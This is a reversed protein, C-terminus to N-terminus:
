SSGIEQCFELLANDDYNATTLKSDIFWHLDYVKDLENEIFPAYKYYIQLIKRADDNSKIGLAIFNNYKARLANFPKIRRKAGIYRHKDNVDNDIDDLIYFINKELINEVIGIRFKDDLHSNKLLSKLFKIALEIFCKKIDDHESNDPLTAIVQSVIDSFIILQTVCQSSSYNQSLDDIMQSISLYKRECASCISSVELYLHSLSASKIIASMATQAVKFEAYQEASTLVLWFLSDDLKSIKSQIEEALKNLVQLKTM